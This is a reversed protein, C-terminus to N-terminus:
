AAMSRRNGTSVSALLEALGLPFVLLIGVFWLSMKIMGFLIFIKEGGDGIGMSSFALLLTIWILVCLAAVNILLYMLASKGHRSRKEPMAAGMIILVIAAVHLGVMAVGAVSAVTDTSSEISGLASFVAAVVPTGDWPILLWLIFLGAGICATITPVNSEPRHHMAWSGGMMALWGLYGLLMVWGLEAGGSPMNGAFQMQSAEDLYLLVVPLLGLALVAIARAAGRMTHGIIILAAGAPLPYVIFFRTFGGMGPETLALFNPWIIQDPTVVPLVMGLILMVGIAIFAHLSISTGTGIALAPDDAPAYPDRAYPAPASPAAGSTLQGTQLNLGCDTCFRQDPALAARCSPCSRQAPAAAASLGALGVQELDPIVAIAEIVFPERCQTCKVRQGVGHEPVKFRSQCHPCQTEIKM